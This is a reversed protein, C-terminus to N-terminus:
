EVETVKYGSNAIALAIEKQDIKNEDYNVVAKGVEVDSGDINLKTLAKKVAMVCHGCTMGEIKFTKTMKSGKHKKKHLFLM